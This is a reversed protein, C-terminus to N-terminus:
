AAGTAPPQNLAGPATLSVAVVTKKTVDSREGTPNGPQAPDCQGQTPSYSPNISYTCCNNRLNDGRVIRGDALMSAFARELPPRDLNTNARVQGITRDGAMLRRFVQAEIKAQRLLSNEQEPNNGVAPLRGRHGEKHAANAMDQAILAQLEDTLRHPAVAFPFRRITDATIIM